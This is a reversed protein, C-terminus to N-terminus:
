LFAGGMSIFFGGLIIVACSVYGIILLRSEKLLAPMYWNRLEVNRVQGMSGTFSVNDGTNEGSLYVSTPKVRHKSYIPILILPIIFLMFLIFIIITTDQPAIPSVFNVMRSGNIYPVIFGGSIFPYLGCVIVVMAALMYLSIKEDFRMIYDTTSSRHANAILKGMWKTWFFLTVTSGFAIILVVLINGSDVFAKMAAWKSILMGFPALFMGAIGIILLMALATSIQFLGDMDEVNRSGLQHETSGVTLFLLSKAIAHFIILMIAAWLSDSTNIGACAVILGLNSITSYALIKKADSQTVALVATILFTVGGVLTVAIGATNRGLMPALRIIIYVGAKVMTSSHLLASTPTPAVMAGLLWKSFPLQAAKTFGACCILFVATMVLPAGSDLNLLSNLDIINEYYALLVIGVTFCLGGFVNITIALFANKVAEASKTYGILLFSCLSTIEWFFLMFVLDNSIVIGFMASLFVFFVTFFMSRRDKVEPHHHHYDKMYEIAYVCILSGIIGIIAIMILSLKDIYISEATEIGHGLSLEFWMFLGTQLVSLLVVFYSKHKIGVYIVYVAILVDIALMIYKIVPYSSLDATFVNKYHLVICLLTACIMVVAASRIIVGYAKQTKAVLTFVAFVLPLGILALVIPM